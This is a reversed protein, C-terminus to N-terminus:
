IIVAKGTDPEHPAGTDAAHGVAVAVAFNHGDPFQLKEKWSEAKDIGFLMAPSALIVSGLGLSHAALALTQACIGADLQPTIKNGVSLFFVVPANYFAKHNHVALKKLMSENKTAQLIAVIGQEMEEIVGADTVASVHVGRMNGGTPACLAALILAGVQEKSLKTDKFARCSRRDRIAKLVENDM